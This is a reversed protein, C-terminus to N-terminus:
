ILPVGANYINSIETPTLVKTWFGLDQMKGNLAWMVSPGDNWANGLTRKTSGSTTYTTSYTSAIASGNIYFISQTSSKTHAIHVWSGTATSTGVSYHDFGHAGHTGVYLRGDTFWGSVCGGNNLHSTPINPETIIGAHSTASNRWVWVCFSWVQRGNFLWEPYSAQEGSGSFALCYSGFKPVSSTRSANILTITSGGTASISDAPSGTGETMGWHTIMSDAAAAAANAYYGGSPFTFGGLSEINAIEISRVKAIDEANKGGYKSIETM